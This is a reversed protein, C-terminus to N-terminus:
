LYCMNSEVLLVLLQFVFMIINQTAYINLKKSSFLGFETLLVSHDDFCSVMLSAGHTQQQGCPM